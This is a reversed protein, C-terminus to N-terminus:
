KKRQMQKVWEDMVFLDTLLTRVHISANFNDALQSSISPAALVLKLVASAARADLRLQTIFVQAANHASDADASSTSLALSLNDMLPPLENAATLMATLRTRIESTGGALPESERGQAAYALSFEYASEITDVAQAFLQSTSSTM